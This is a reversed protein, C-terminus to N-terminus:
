PNLIKGMFLISNSTKESIVIGFPRDCIMRIQRPGPYSTLVIGITTVAAAEPTKQVSGKNCGMWTALTLILIAYLTDKM